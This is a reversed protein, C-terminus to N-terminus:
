FNDILRINQIFYAIFIKFNNKNYKKTLNYKNRIEFYEIKAGYSKIEKKIESIKKKYKFNKTLSFYFKKILISISKAKKLSIKSLLMNRSSLALSNNTRITKGTIVKINFNNKILKKILYVQQYDKEGLFIYRVKL